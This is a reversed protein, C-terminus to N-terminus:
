LLLKFKQSNKSDGGARPAHTSIAEACERFHEYPTAGRVPPTPQFQVTIAASGLYRYDGGARPAHTSIQHIQVAILPRGPTAGRVPPTPQFILANQGDVCM